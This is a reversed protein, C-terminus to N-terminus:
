ASLWGKCAQLLSCGVIHLLFWFSFLMSVTFLKRAAITRAALLLACPIVKEFSLDYEAIVVSYNETSAMHSPTARELVCPRRHRTLVREVPIRERRWRKIPVSARM